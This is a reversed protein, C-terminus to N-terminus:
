AYVELFVRKTTKIEVLELRDLEAGTFTQSRPSLPLRGSRVLTKGIRIRGLGLFEQKNVLVEIETDAIRYKQRPM